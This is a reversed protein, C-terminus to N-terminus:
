FFCFSLRVIVNQQQNRCGASGHNQFPFLATVESVNSLAVKSFIIENCQRTHKKTSNAVNLLILTGDVERVVFHALM